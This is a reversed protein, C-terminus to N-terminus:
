FRLGDKRIMSIWETKKKMRRRQRQKQKLKKTKLDRLDELARIFSEVELMEKKLEKLKEEKEEKALNKIKKKMEILSEKIKKIYSKLIEELEKCRKKDDETITEKEVKRGIEFCFDRMTKNKWYENLSFLYRGHIKMFEYMDLSPPQVGTTALFRETKSSLSREINM